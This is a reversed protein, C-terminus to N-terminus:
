AILFGIGLEDSSFFNYSFGVIKITPIKTNKISLQL